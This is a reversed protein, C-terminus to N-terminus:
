RMVQEKRTKESGCSFEGHKARSRSRHCDYLIAGEAEGYLKAQTRQKILVNCVKVNRVAM